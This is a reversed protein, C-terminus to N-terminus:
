FTHSIYTLTCIRMCIMIRIMEDHVLWFVTEFCRLGCRWQYKLNGHISIQSNEFPLIYAALYMICVHMCIGARKSAHTQLTYVYLITFNMVACKSQVYTSKLGHCVSHSPKM